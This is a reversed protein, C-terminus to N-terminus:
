GLISDILKILGSNKDGLRGKLESLTRPLRDKIRQIKYLYKDRVADEHYELDAARDLLVISEDWDEDLRSIILRISVRKEDFSGSLEAAVNSPADTFEITEEHWIM